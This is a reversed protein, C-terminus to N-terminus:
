FHLHVLANTFLLFFPDMYWLGLVEFDEEGDKKNTLENLLIFFFLFSFLLLSFGASQRRYYEM